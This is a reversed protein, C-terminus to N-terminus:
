RADTGSTETRRLPLLTWPALPVSRPTLLSEAVDGTGSSHTVARRRVLRQPICSGSLSFAEVAPSQSM